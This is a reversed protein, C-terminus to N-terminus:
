KRTFCQRAHATHGKKKERAFPRLTELGHFIAPRIRNPSLPVYRRPACRSVRTASILAATKIESGVSCDPILPASGAQISRTRVVM